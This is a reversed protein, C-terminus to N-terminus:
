AKNVIDFSVDDEMSPLTDACGDDNDQRAKILPVHAANSEDLATAAAPVTITGKPVAHWGKAGSRAVCKAEWMMWDKQKGSFFLVRIAHDM